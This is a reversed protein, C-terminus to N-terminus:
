SPKCLIHPVVKDRDIIYLHYGGNASVHDELTIGSLGELSYEAAIRNLVTQAERAMQSEIMQYISDTARMLKIINDELLARRQVDMQEYNRSVSYNQSIGMLITVLLVVLLMLLILKGKISRLTKRM